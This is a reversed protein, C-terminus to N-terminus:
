KIRRRVIRFGKCLIDDVKYRHFASLAAKDLNMEQLGRYDCVIALDSKLYVLYEWTTRYERFMQSQKISREPNDRWNQALKAAHGDRLGDAWQQTVNKRIKERTEPHAIMKTSSDRRLNYGYDRHTSNFKDMWFLERESSDEVSCFELITYTFNEYGHKEMARMMYNNIQDGRRNKFDYKYHHCRRWPCKTKGVYVKGDIKNTICYIAPKNKLRIDPKM